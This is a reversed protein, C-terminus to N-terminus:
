KSRILESDLTAVLLSRVGYNQEATSTAIARVTRRDAFTPPRGTAHTVLHGVFNEALTQPRSAVLRRYEAFNAFPRGDATEFGADIEAGQDVRWRGKRWAPYKDRWRGAADFSEFAYGPPDIMRHCAACGDDATHLALSERITTAGRVDPEVTPVNEPPPPIERGLLRRSVWVGRVVPSTENGAATVKHISGHSLLGGRVSGAPLKVRTPERLATMPLGYYAALRGNITTSDDVYLDAIPRDDRVADAVAAHTEAIMAAQVTPDFGRHLPQDPETVDILDLDLWQGCLNDVFRKLRRRQGTGRDGAVPGFWRDIHGAVDDRSGLENRTAAKILPWDPMSGIAAYSLRAAYDRPPLAGAPHAFYQFRPSCLVATYGDWLAEVPPRGGDIADDVFAAYRDISPHNARGPGLRFARAAFRRLQTVVADRHEPAISLRRRKTPGRTPTEFDAPVNGLMRDIVRERDGRPYIRTLVLRHMALGPVKQPEGEGFGVQGGEFRGEKLRSDMPRIELMDGADLHTEFTFSRPKGDVAFSGVWDLLPASTHCRGGRVSCWILPGGDKPGTPVNVGSATLGIRYHGAHRITTAPVRGYFTMRSNWVVAAGRRMEPSRNRQGPRKDAIEDAPLDQNWADWGEIRERASALSAEVMRLHSELQFHSTSQTSAVGEFGGGRIPDPVLRAVPVHNGTLDALTQEIQRPTLRRGEVRGVCRNRDREFRVLRKGANRVFADRIPADIEADDPPPMEGDRVRDIVRVWRAFRDPDGLGGELEGVDFGGEGGTGDHCDICHERVFADVKSPASGDVPRTTGFLVVGFAVPM